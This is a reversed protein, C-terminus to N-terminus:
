KKSFEVFGGTMLPAGTDNVNFLASSNLPNINSTALLLMCPSSIASQSSCVRRGSRFFKLNIEFGM